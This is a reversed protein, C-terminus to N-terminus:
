IIPDYDVPFGLSKREEFIKEDMLMWGADMKEHDLYDTPRKGHASHLHEVVSRSDWYFKGLQKAKENWESDIRYYSYHPPAFVGGMVEKCYRRTTMWMTSVQLNGDYALDNMGVVGYGGVKEKLSELAFDLWGPHFIQDDGAFVIVSGRSLRLAGNWCFLAGRRIPSYDMIFNGDVRSLIRNVEVPSYGDLVLVTEVDHDGKTDLLSGLCGILLDTRHCSPILVSIM